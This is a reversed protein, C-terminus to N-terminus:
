QNLAIERLKLGNEIIVKSLAPKNKFASSIAVEEPRFRACGIEESVNNIHNESIKYKVQSKRLSILIDYHFVKDSHRAGWNEIDILDVQCSKFVALVFTACTLGIEKKKLKLLGDQTFVAGTYYLGYPIEQETDRKIIRRCFAAISNQRFKHIENPKVWIYNSLNDIINTEHKLSCHWALHIANFNKQYKYAIGCHLQKEGTKGVIIGINEPSELFTDLNSISQEFEIM